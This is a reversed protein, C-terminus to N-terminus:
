VAFHISPSRNLDTSTIAPGVCGVESTIEEGGDIAGTNQPGCTSNRPLQATLCCTGRSAWQVNDNSRDQEFYSRLAPAMEDAIRTVVAENDEGGGGGSRSRGTASSVHPSPASSATPAPPRSHSLSPTAMHRMPLCGRRASSIPALGTLLPTRERRLAMMSSFKSHSSAMGCAVSEGSCHEPPYLQLSTHLSPVSPPSISHLYLPPLLPPSGRRPRRPARHSKTVIFLNLRLLRLVAYECTAKLVHVRLNQPLPSWSNSALPSFPIDTSQANNRRYEVESPGYSALM